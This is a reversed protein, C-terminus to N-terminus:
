FPLDDEDDEVAQEIDEKSQFQSDTNNYKAVAAAYERKREEWHKSREYDQEKFPKMEDPLASVNVIKAYVNGQQSTIHEITILANVGVLDSWEVGETQEQKTIASGRANGFFKPLTANKGFSVTLEIGPEFRKQTDPNVEKIQCVYAIKEKLSTKDKFTEVNQGLDIMDVFVCQKTGAKPLAFPKRSTKKKDPM